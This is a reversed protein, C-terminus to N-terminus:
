GNIQKNNSLKPQIEKKAFIDGLSKMGHGRKVQDYRTDELWETRRKTDEVIAVVYSPNIIGQKVKVVAGTSIAQMVASVEAPDVQIEHKTSLIVKLGHSLIENSKISM